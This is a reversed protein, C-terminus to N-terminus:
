KGLCYRKCTCAATVCCCILLLFLGASLAAVAEAREPQMEPLWSLAFDLIEDGTPLGAALDSLVTM